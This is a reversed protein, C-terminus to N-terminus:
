TSETQLKKKLAEFKEKVESYKYVDKPAISIVDEKIIKRTKPDYDIQVIAYEWPTDYLIYREETNTVPDRFTFEDIEEGSEYIESLIDEKNM